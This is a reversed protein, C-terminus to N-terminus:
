RMRREVFGRHEDEPESRRPGSPGRTRSRRAATATGPLGAGDRPQLARDWRRPAGAQQGPADPLATPDGEPPGATSEACGDLPGLWTYHNLYNFTQKSCGHRFYVAWGHLASNLQRLLIPLPQNPERHPSRRSRPWSRRSRRRAHGATSTCRTRDGNGNANSGFASSTSGRTSTACAPRRRRPGCGSTSLVAATETKLAEAQAKTGSVMVVFDDAYRVLRYMALGHRRRRTRDHNAAM